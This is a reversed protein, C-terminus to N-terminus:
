WQIKRSFYMIVALTIFLGISGFLLSYDQLQLITFVYTHMLVLVLSLMGSLRGSFLIGKVFWGILGITAVSAIIYSANFGIYESLSLLLVYFLVLALGVLGYQFPHVSRKNSTEILFFAAFTLLICLVAYKVSRMTKQYGNIPVFLSAGFSADNIQSSNNIVDYDRTVTEFSRSKSGLIYADDKWQQPYARKYAMSKWTATFGSDKIQSTQPLIDGIFSPHPWKSQFSVSTSRGVPTVLLEESGNLDLKISFSINKLGNLSSVPINATLGKLGSRDEFSQPSLSFLQNNWNLSLEENLGKVDSVNLKIFAENWIVEEPLINMKSIDIDKFQGSLNIISNYLMVKYIGRHKERPFIRANVTLAEPLFYAFHKSQIKKTATDSDTQWYPLILLPGTVVQRGAWKSSVEAIAEKQRQEREAILGQIFFAPIILLLVLFAIILGKILVKSKSWVNQITTEM